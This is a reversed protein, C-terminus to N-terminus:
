PAGPPKQYGATIANQGTTYLGQLRAYYDNAANRQTSVNTQYGQLGYNAQDEQTRFANAVNANYGALGYQANDEASRFANGTNTNNTQLARSYINGYENSAYDQAYRDLAKLTGGSLISGKAAASAQIADTGMKMRAQFGPDNAETLGSPAEFATPTAITPVQYPTQSTFTPATYTGPAQALSGTGYSGGDAGPASGAPAGEPTMFKSVIYNPDTGLEGSSIKGIWYNPDAKLSPNAGPQNAYYNVYAAVSAPDQANLTPAAGGPSASPQGVPQTTVQAGGNSGPNAAKYAQAEPSSAISSQISNLDYSGGTLTDQIEQPTAARGLLQQYLASVQDATAGGGGTPAPATATPSNDDWWSM